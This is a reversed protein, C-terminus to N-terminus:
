DVQVEGRPGAGTGLPGDPRKVLASVVALLQDNTQRLEALSKELATLRDRQEVVLDAISAASQAASAAAESRAADLRPLVVNEVLSAVIQHLAATEESSRVRVENKVAEFHLNLFSRMPQTVTRAATALPNSPM